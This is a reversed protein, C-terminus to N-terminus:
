AQIPTPISKNKKTSKKNKALLTIVFNKDRQSSQTKAFPKSDIKPSRM